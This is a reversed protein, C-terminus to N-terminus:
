EIKSSGALQMAIASDKKLSASTSDSDSDSDSDSIIRLPEDKLLEKIKKKKFWKLLMIHKM